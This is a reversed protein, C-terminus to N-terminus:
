WRARFGRVDVHVFPGHAPTSPYAAVGGLLPRDPGDGFRRQVITSLVAADQVDIRGDGNLDDMRGDAPHEDIFIDAAAGYVHRSYAVNGIARNYYPTRYGSMISFSHVNYGAQRMGKLLEELKRLLRENLVVYRPFTGGQKAVFQKLQLHPTLYLDQNDRTVEVFGAPPRYVTRGRLPVAQYRGIRYGHLYEGRAARAPVMVFAQLTISDSGSASVARLRQVGPAAPAVWRWANAGASTLSGTAAELRAETASSAAIAEVALTEGPMVFVAGLPYSSVIGKYRLAFGGAPSAPAPRSAALVLPLAALWTAAPVRPPRTLNRKRLM